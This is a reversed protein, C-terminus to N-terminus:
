VETEFGSPGNYKDKWRNNVNERNKECMEEYKIKDREITGSIASFAMNLVPTDFEAIVGHRHFDVLALLLAKTEDGTLFKLYSEAYDDFFKFFMQQAM